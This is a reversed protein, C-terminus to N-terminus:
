IPIEYAIFEMPNELHELIDLHVPGFARGRCYSLHRLSM